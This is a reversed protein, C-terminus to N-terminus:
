RATFARELVAMRVAVGCRVQRRIIPRIPSREPLAVDLDIETGPNMPGPHMLITSRPLARARATTLAFAERADAPLPVEGHRETQARLMMIAEPPTAFLADLDHHVSVGQALTTLAQPAWRPPGVLQVSAGLAACALTTSRAVRSSVVDGVIALRVGTLDFAGDRGLAECLALADLLGQTPHEHRGDGANIVPTSVAAQACAAAGSAASRVVIADAGMAELTRVTEAISEGKSTSSGTSVDIVAAGLRQAALTFSGRTRTSAEFFALAVAQSRRPPAADPSRLIARARSLLDRVALAPLGRLGILGRGLARDSTPM